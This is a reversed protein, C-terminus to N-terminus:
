CVDDNNEENLLEELNSERSLKTTICIEDIENLFAERHSEQKISNLFPSLRDFMKDDNYSLPHKVPTNGLTFMGSSNYRNIRFGKKHIILDIVDSGINATITMRESSTSTTFKDTSKGAKVVFKYFNESVEEDYDNMLEEFTIYSSNQTNETSKNYESITEEIIKKLKSKKM